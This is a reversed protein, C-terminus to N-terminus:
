RSTTSIERFVEKGREQEKKITEPSLTFPPLKARQTRLFDHRVSCGNFQLAQLYGMPRYSLLSPPSAEMPKPVLQLRPTEPMGRLSWPKLLTLGQRRRLVLRTMSSTCTNKEGQPFMGLSPSSPGQTVGESWRSPTARERHIGEDEADRVVRLIDRGVGNMTEWLREAFEQSNM